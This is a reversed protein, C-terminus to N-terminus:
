QDGVRRREALAAAGDEATTVDRGHYRCEVPTANDARALERRRAADMSRSVRAATDDPPWGGNHACAALCAELWGLLDDISLGRPKKPSRACRSCAGRWTTRTPTACVRRTSTRPIAGDLPEFLLEFRSVWDALTGSSVALYRSSRVIVVGFGRFGSVQRSSWSPSGSM